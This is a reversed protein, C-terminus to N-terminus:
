KNKHPFLETFFEQWPIFTVGDVERRRAATSVCILRAEPRKAKFSFLGGRVDSLAPNDTAKIEIAWCEGRPFEIILDVEARNESRYFSFTLDCQGYDNLRWCENIIFHEFATGYDPTGPEVQVKLKKTLARQVGTDFLYFKPHAVLRGRTSRSYAPLFRGILTDELIQFYERITKPSVGVDRSITSFNLINGSEHGAQTLFRVFSGLGRVLAEAEIEEKLYTEVYSRLLQESAHDDSFWIKPLGGFNLARLLNFQEGLERHTLPHLNLTWARGGLMNANLRKLKRASSGTLVFVPPRNSELLRHVEDLLAPVKQVEDILIHTVNESRSNVEERLSAPRSLLRMYEDTKLLDFCMVQDIAFSQMVLSTKGTQRPGFLFFSNRQPLNLLRPLM